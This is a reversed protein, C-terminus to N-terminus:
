DLPKLPPCYIRLAAIPASGNIELLHPGNRLGHAVTVVADTDPTVNPPPPLQDMGTPETRWKVTFQAPVPKVKALSLAYEVNWDEPEIVVRGSRSVFREDSRGAGDDGTRSGRLTFTFQNEKAPDATVQMTWDEAQRCSVYGLKSIVPWKGGPTALARTFCYLEPHASPKQGDIRVSALAPWTASDKFVVDVRNGTFALRLKGNEWRLDRGVALTKVRDCHYPDVPKKQDPAARFYDTVLGAMLEDGQAGIHSKDPGLLDLMSINKELLHQRWRARVNVLGTQYRLAVAPLFRYNWYLIWHQGRTIQLPDTEETLAGENRIYDTLILIDAVTRQRTRRIIDDYNTDTGAVNFVMLDPQFSYLDSEATKVLYPSHFGGLARNEIVLNAHPFLQRLNTAFQKWWPPEMGSQGYILIRVTQRHAATSGAMMALSREINRSPQCLESLPFNTGTVALVCAPRNLIEPVVPGNAQAWGPRVATLLWLLGIAIPRYNM